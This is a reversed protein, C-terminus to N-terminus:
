FPVSSDNEFRALIEKMLGAKDERMRKVIPKKTYTRPSYKLGWLAMELLTPLLDLAKKTPSYLIQKKSTPDDGRSILGQQELKSLRDALINTAIGEESNLLEQYRRKGRMILDRLILLSWKDGLAELVASIPCDSRRKPMALYAFIVQM